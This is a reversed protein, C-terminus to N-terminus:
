VPVLVSRAVLDVLVDFLHEGDTEILLVDTYTGGGAEKM